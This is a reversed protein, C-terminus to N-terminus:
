PNVGTSTSLIVTNVATIALIMVTVISCIYYKNNGRCCEQNYCITDSAEINHTGNQHIRNDLPNYRNSSNTLSNSRDNQLLSNRKEDAVPKINQKRDSEQKTKENAEQINRLNGTQRVETWM